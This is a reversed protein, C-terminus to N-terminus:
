ISQEKSIAIITKASNLVALTYTYSSNRDIFTDTYSYNGQRLSGPFFEHVLRDTAGQEKRYIIFRDAYEAYRITLNIEAYDRSIIWASDQKRQVSFADIMGYIATYDQRNKDSLTNSYARGAPSFYCGSKGPKAIGSWGSVVEHSYNGSSGTMCNGGFNSFVLKVGPCGKGEPDKIIGSIKVNNANKTKASIEQGVQSVVANKNFEHPETRTKAVFYYTANRKLGTITLQAIRKDETTGSPQSTYIGSIRSDYIRYHGNEGTYIIPMWTLLVATNSLPYAMLNAPAITQTAAWDPDEGDLFEKLKKSDSYLANYGIDLGRLRILSLLSGPISEWFKNSNLYLYELNELRGMEMPIEGSLRNDQLQLLTLNEMNGMEAPLVGTLENGELCLYVLNALNGIEHPIDGGLRNSNLLLSVLRNLNGLQWPIKGQLQNYSLHLYLLGSLNALVSPITGTLLNSNLRLSRLNTLSGLTTPIQGTLQNSDLSLNLLKKLDALGAPISGTLSNANLFLSGLNKLKRLEGPIAGSLFNGSLDLYLVESLRWIGAHITGVLNNDPLAIKEVKSNAVNCTIGYWNAETGSRAFGDAGLPRSKWGSNNTWNDGNTSKYLDILANREEAPIATSLRPIDNPNYSNGSSGTNEGTIEHSSFRIRTHVPLGNLRLEKIDPEISKIEGSIRNLKLSNKGIYLNINNNIPCIELSVM